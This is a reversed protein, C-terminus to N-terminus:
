VCGYSERKFSLITFVIIVNSLDSECSTDFYKKLLRDEFVQNIIWKTNSCDSHEKRL